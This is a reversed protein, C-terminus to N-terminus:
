FSVNVGFNYTAYLPFAGNDIGANTPSGGVEPNFGKYSFSNYINQASAYVRVRKMFMKTALASPLTYGLQLNRIRFYAGSEVFFSNPKYNNGGGINASPYTNSTGEGHWRNDYFDKTFNESGYRLGKNANYVDVGAVGQLDITLDFEKYNLTTNLGYLYKPNPNGIVARDKADIAGDNNLDKYRFDGPKADKQSSAAIEAANQFVGDVVLGYFQGIPQGLITRTSLQGGTAAAGGGYIPNQGTITSLVKNNNISFNGNVTYSFDANIQGRWGASFEFGENQFTAQNGIITGGSTGLSGLIPIAFIGQETKKKYYDAEFTLRSNLFAMELGIDTGVGREWYTVPPVITTINAGTSAVGNYIAAFGASNNVTQVSLNAPVSANGIKGWSGRLKLNDFIHQNQMFPESSIVWGAGVSPFYGWRQNGIFKSSGDARMSANLLYRNKFSYNIRGFYSQYTALDGSDTVTNPFQQDNSGVRLYLDADSTYPVNQATAVINYSKYRQSSQGALVTLHHDKFTKDFTLTNEQIWNRVEARSVNLDSNDNFQAATAKYAPSYGLVEGEGFEGGFSSRLTLFSALKIEAFMNGTIRYNKSRQNFFDLQAKPNNTANGIPFDAPDGYTGDAYFVPVVPAATFAKYILGGPADKSFSHQIVANYGLKLFKTAQVDQQMHTTLRDYNNGTVVGQQKLYGASFSYSSKDTSGSVTLDHKMTFADRLVTNLWNTGQGFKNPDAFTLPDNPFQIKNLENIMTAYETANALAPQNTVKQWGAYASYNITPAGKGKKTTVLVVGNAARVGYISESSADKLISMNEIDNPNLFSIDDFWVGDVVYLPNANGYVTGVGRIRIEPSAGPNGNNTIQVGAVKGQLSSIANTSAQKSIDDGKVSAVSGTVDLKRQTGYGVVVVQQLETASSELKIDINTRGSVPVTQTTYGIYSVQLTATSAANVSFNGNVDTQSGASTGQVGVTVGILAEGTKADTVKGKVIINQASAFTSFFTFLLLLGSIKYIRKM